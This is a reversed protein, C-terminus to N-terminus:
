TTKAAAAAVDPKQHLHLYCDTMTTAGSTQGTVRTSIHLNHIVVSYLIEGVPPITDQHDTTVKCQFSGRPSNDATKPYRTMSQSKPYRYEFM